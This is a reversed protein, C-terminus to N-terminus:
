NEFAALFIKRKQTKEERRQAIFPKLILKVRLRLFSIASPNTSFYFLWGGAPDRFGFAPPGTGGVVLVRSATM